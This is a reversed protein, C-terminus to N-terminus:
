VTTLLGEQILRRVLALKSNDTLGPLDKIAFEESDVIFRIARESRNSEMVTNGAFQIGIKSITKIIRYIGERKQVITDLTLNDLNELQYFHEDALPSMEGLFRQAIEEIAVEVESKDALTQLLEQFQEKLSVKAEGQQLFGVPLSERFRVDKQTLLTVATNILDFWKYAHIGVTLHISSSDSTFVEHIYGRPIYLLDGANLCFEAVPSKLENRFREQYKHDSPLPLTIPSDYIRWNKSGEVQLIFVDHSDFHAAFGQSNKPSMYLNIGVPHNLFVQLKRHLDSIPKWRENIRGLNLTYGLSYAKYLQKLDVVGDNNFFSNEKILQVQSPNSGYFRIISDIDKISILESYYNLDSRPIFCPRKEWYQSFFTESDIPHLMREFDFDSKSM